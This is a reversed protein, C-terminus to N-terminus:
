AKSQCIPTCRLRNTSWNRTMKNGMTGRLRLTETWSYPRDFSRGRVNTLLSGYHFIKGLWTTYYGHEKFYQPITTFNGKEERWYTM